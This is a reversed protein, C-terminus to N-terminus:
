RSKKAIAVLALRGRVEIIELNHKILARRRQEAEALVARHKAFFKLHEIPDDAPASAPPAKVVAPPCGLRPNVTFEWRMVTFSKSRDWGGTKREGPIVLGKKKLVTLFGRGVSLGFRDCLKAAVKDVSFQPAHGSPDLSLLHRYAGAQHETLVVPPTAHDPM